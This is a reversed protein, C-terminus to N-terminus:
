SLENQYPLWEIAAAHKSKNNHIICKGNEAPELMRCNLPREGPKLSCGKETLFTCEGGWTPDYRSGEFGKISPRVFYAKDLEEKDTRPDGEWWDITYKGSALAKQLKILNGPLSFDSPFCAGPQQKCCKGECKSCLEKNELM